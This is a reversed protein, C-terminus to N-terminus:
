YIANYCEYLFEIRPKRQQFTVYRWMTGGGTYKDSTILASFEADKEYSELWRKQGEILAPKDEEELRDLLLNYYKDLLRSEAEDIYEAYIIIYPTIYGCLEGCANITEEIVFFDKIYEQSTYVYRVNYKSKYYDIIYDGLIRNIGEYTYRPRNDLNYGLVSNLFDELEHSLSDIVQESLGDLASHATEEDATNGSNIKSNFSFLCAILLLIIKTKM